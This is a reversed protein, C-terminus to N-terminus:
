WGFGGEGTNSNSPLDRHQKVFQWALGGVISGFVMGKVLQMASEEYSGSTRITLVPGLFAGILMSLFFFLGDLLNRYHKRMGSKVAPVV